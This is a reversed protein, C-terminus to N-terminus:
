NNNIFVADTEYKRGYYDSFIHETITIEREPFKKQLVDIAKIVKAKNVKDGDKMQIPIYISSNTHASREIILLIRKDTATAPELFEGNKEIGIKEGEIIVTSLEEKTCDELFSVTYNGELQLLWWVCFIIIVFNIIIVIIRTGVKSRRMKAVEKIYGEM